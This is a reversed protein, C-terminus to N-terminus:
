YVNRREDGRGAPILGEGGHHPDPGTADVAGEPLSRTRTCRIYARNNPIPMGTYLNIYCSLM